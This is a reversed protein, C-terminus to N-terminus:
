WPPAGGGGGDLSHVRFKLSDVFKQPLSYEMSLFNFIIETSMKEEFLRVIKVKKVINEVSVCGVDM